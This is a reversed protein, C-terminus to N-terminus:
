DHYLQKVGSPYRVTYFTNQKILQFPLRLIFNTKWRFNEIFHCNRQVSNIWHSVVAKLDGHCRMCYWIGTDDHQNSMLILTVTEAM